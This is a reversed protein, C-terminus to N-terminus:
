AYDLAQRRVPESIRVDTRIRELVDAKSRLHPVLRRVLALAEREIGDEPRLPRADWLITTGDISTSAIRRGDPSFAVGICGGTHGELALIEDGTAADWVRVTRDFSTSALRRGDPSFAVGILGSTHRYMRRLLEGSATDWLCISYDGSASALRTGDPSFAVMHVEGNHRGRLCHTQRGTTLDWIRVTLDMGASALRRSDPSFAVGNARDTHGKLSQLLRGTDADWVRVAQTDGTALLRGDPSFAAFRVLGAHANLTLVPRGMVLDWVHILGSKNTSAVRRGDPHYAVGSSEENPGCLALVEERTAVDWLRVTGDAGATVLRDGDPSFAVGRVKEAHGRLRTLGPPTSVDWIRVTGDGAASALRAGTPEFAVGSVGSAHGRLTVAERGSALDWIKISGDNCGVALRGGDADFAVKAILESHGGLSLGVQGTAVDWVKVTRDMCGAALLRGDPSYAVTWIGLSAGRLTQIPKGDMVDWVRVASENNGATALQRGDPRFALSVMSNVVSDSDSPGLPLLHRLNGDRADWIRVTKDLSATALLAGDPSFAVSNVWQTHGTLKLLCRGSALDWVRVTADKSASALRSGDPSFVVDWVLDTHGSLSFRERGDAFDWVKVLNGAVGSALQRGDPSLALCVVSGPQWEVEQDRGVVRLEPFCLRRLYYWEWDRHEGPCDDLMQMVKHFNGDRWATQALTIRHLYNVRDVERRAQAEDRRAQEAVDLADKLRGSFFLSTVFGVLAVLAVGSVLVLAATAPRRRAWLWARELRGVPRAAVPEGTQYRRLDEALEGATRYRRAPDKRLCKLCVTELDRPGAPNLLRPPVPEEELVQRLTEVATTAKFPPRGSLCEYLIAGLAYVDAPPGAQKARGTAQEPAMYSPTGLVDGTATQGAEDLRRALGFDTVKPTGDEALLVNAPKLDRHIIGNEHGAHVARALAETLRAAEAAPLPSGALKKELSGGPCYELVLYSQGAHEGNEFVQVIHPHRLRAVAEAEALFRRRSEPNGAAGPKLMKLAVLRNLGVQRARYVVGMGGQGLVDLVEYGPVTTGALGEVPAPGAARLSSPFPDTTARSSPVSELARHLEIQLLLREALQPFRRAYEEPPPAEGLQECLLFEGYVLEVAYEFDAQLGPVLELYVEAPVREGLQWRERQDVLLVAAVEAPLLAQVTSLFSCVDPQQGERWLQWLRRAPSASIEKPQNSFNNSASPKALRDSM